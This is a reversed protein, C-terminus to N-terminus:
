ATSPTATACRQSAAYSRILLLGVTGAVISSPPLKADLRAEGAAVSRPRLLAESCALLTGFGLFSAGVLKLARGRSIAGSAMGKALEDFSYEETIDEDYRPPDETSM